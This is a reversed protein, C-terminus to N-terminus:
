IMETYSIFFHVVGMERKEEFVVVHMQVYINLISGRYLCAM